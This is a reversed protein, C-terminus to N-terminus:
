IKKLNDKLINNIRLFINRKFMQLYLLCNKCIIFRSINIFKKDYLYM